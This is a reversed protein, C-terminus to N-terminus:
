IINQNEVKDIERNSLGYLKYVLQDIQDDLSLIRKELLEEEYPTVSTIKNLEMMKTVNNEIKRVIETNEENIIKIPFKSLENVKFQPFIKRQFKEYTINFWYSILRSNLLGLIYHLSYRFDPNFIIMSNIDNVEEGTVLMANISLPPKSPIQRVLIRPMSFMQSQRPAALNPGYKLYQGSWQIKYRQVDKGDLYKRYTEDIKKFSHYVRDKKMQNTQPPNGRGTEYAKLGSKVTCIQGLEITGFSLKTKLHRVHENQFQTSFSIIGEQLLHNPTFAGIYTYKNPEDSELLTVETPDHKSFMLLSTDVSAGSFVKYKNNVIIVDGSNLLIFERVSKMTSISLWNNPIIFGLKGSLKLM